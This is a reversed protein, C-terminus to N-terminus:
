TAVSGACYLVVRGRVLRSYNWGRYVRYEILAPSHGNNNFMLDLHLDEQKDCDADCRYRGLLISPLGNGVRQWRASTSLYCEKIDVIFESPLRRQDIMEGERIACPLVFRLHARRTCDDEM